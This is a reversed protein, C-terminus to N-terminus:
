QENSVESEQSIAQPEGVIMDDEEADDYTKTPLIIMDEFDEFADMQRRQMYDNYPTGIRNKYQM